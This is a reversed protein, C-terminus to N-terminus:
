EKHVSTGRQISKENFSLQQVGLFLFIQCECPKALFEGLTLNYNWKGEDPLGSATSTFVLVCTLSFWAKLMAIQPFSKECYFLRDYAFIILLSTNGDQNARLLLIVLIKLNQKSRTM